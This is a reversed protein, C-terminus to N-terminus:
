MPESYGAPSRHLAMAALIGVDIYGDPGLRRHPATGYQYRNLTSPNALSGPLADEQTWHADAADYYRTGLKFLDSTGALGVQLGVQLPFQARWVVAWDRSL